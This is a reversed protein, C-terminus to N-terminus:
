DCGICHKSSCSSAVMFRGKVFKPLDNATKFDAVEAALDDMAEMPVVQFRHALRLVSERNIAAGKSPDMFTIDELVKEGFPFKAVMKAVVAAYFNEVSNFFTSIQGKCM